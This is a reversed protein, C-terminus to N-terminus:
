FDDHRPHLMQNIVEPECSSKDARDALLDKLFGTRQSSVFLAMSGMLWHEHTWSLVALGIEGCGKVQLVVNALHVKLQQLVFTGERVAKPHKGHPNTDSFTAKMIFM